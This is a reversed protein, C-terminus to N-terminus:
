EGRLGKIIRYVTQASGGEINRLAREIREQTVGVGNMYELILFARAASEEQDLFGERIAWAKQHAISAPEEGKFRTQEQARTLYKLFDIVYDFGAKWQRSDASLLLRDSVDLAVSTIMLCDNEVFIARAGRNENVFLGNLGTDRALNNLILCSPHADFRGLNLDSEIEKEKDLIYRLRRPNTTTRKEREIDVLAIIRAEQSPSKKRQQCM